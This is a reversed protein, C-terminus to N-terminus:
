MDLLRINSPQVIRRTMIAMNNASITIGATLDSLEGPALGSLATGANQTFKPKVRTAAVAQATITM